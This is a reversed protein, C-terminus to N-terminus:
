YGLALGDKRHDSGGFLLGREHDIWIGQYGGIPEDAWVIRHGRRALDDRVAEPITPELSLKGEFHFSRPRDSAQQVDDGRDVIQSLVHVHGAAQYQGGMVGLSMVTRGNQTVMGPIITHLPRKKPAIANPHGRKLNFGAGRNQLLVGSKPAYIGSGFAYFLSNIFSVANRDRDVVTVYVTDRHQPVECHADVSAQGLQISGRLKALAAPSLIEDFDVVHFVPDAVIADRQRYAVKTAEALLHIRDADSLVPDSLDFGDLVGAIILAALGQGNPPCEHLTLQRYAISGSVGYESNQGAFDDLQHLGGLNKLCSVLDDAIEGEYFAARGERGIRRLTRGLAPHALISGTVPAAGSPLFQRAASEYRAVRSAYRAWDLAVRPTVIFGQEAATVAPELVEDLSKSGYDTSLRCWADVAGPITVADVSNDPISALGQDLYYDLTAKAPSRGSGNLAIPTGGRPSFLVFCDGGIGTMHPDIVCQLAVAAIAADVANGGARLIDLAAMSAAPHSCAVMGNQAVSVSRGPEMFNRMYRM